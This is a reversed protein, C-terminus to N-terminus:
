NTQILVVKKNQYLVTYRTTLETQAPMVVWNGPRSLIDQLTEPQTVVNITERGYFYASYPPPFSYILQQGPRAHTKFITILDRASQTELTKPLLGISASMFIIILVSAIMLLRQHLRYSQQSYWYGLLVVFPPISTLPYTVIISRAFTFFLLPALCACWLFRQTEDLQMWRSPWLAVWAQRIFIWIWPLIAVVWFLWITGIPFRHPHGFRDGSWNPDIFRMLHEGIFFYKLFGPYAHEAAIYWPIGILACLLLGIPSWLAQWVRRYNTGTVVFLIIPLAILALTALGKILMGVGCAIWFAYRWYNPQSETLCRQVCFLAFTICAMQIADTMVAGISILLLPSALAAFVCFLRTSYALSQHWRGICWLTLLGALFAPLRMSFASVGLLQGSVASLWTSLPPKAFFPQDLAVHPMLWFGHTLTLQAIEAYRSETNDTLVLIAMLVIRHCLLMVILTLFSVEILKKKNHFLM